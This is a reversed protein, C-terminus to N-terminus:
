PKNEFTPDKKVMDKWFNKKWKSEATAATCEKKKRINYGSPPRPPSQKSRQKPSQKPRYIVGKKHSKRKYCPTMPFFHCMLLVYFLIKYNM